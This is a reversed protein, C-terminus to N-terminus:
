KDIIVTKLLPIREGIRRTKVIKILKNQYEFLNTIIRNLTNGNLTENVGVFFQKQDLLDLSEKDDHTM